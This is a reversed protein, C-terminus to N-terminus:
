KKKGAQEVTKLRFPCNKRIAAKDLAEFEGKLRALEATTQDDGSVFFAAPWFLVIAVGTMVADKRAKKNQVGSLEAVRSSIRRGEEAIQKCSLEQYQIPSIYQPKVEEASSACGSLAAAALIAIACSKGNLM